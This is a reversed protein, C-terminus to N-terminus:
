VISYSDQDQDVSAYRPSPTLSIDGWTPLNCGQKQNQITHSKFALHPYFSCLILKARLSSPLNKCPKGGGGEAFRLTRGQQDLFVLFLSFRQIIVNQLQITKFRSLIYISPLSEVNGLNGLPFM